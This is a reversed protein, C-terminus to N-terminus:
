IDNSVEKTRNSMASDSEIRGDSMATIRDAYSYIRQDHTVVILCRDAAMALDRFLQMATQGSEADLSSTPEDCIIIRPSHVLARAIAVRQQQGGSLQAPYKHLHNGLGLKNLLECAKENAKKASEGQALLPVAANEMINLTHLLNFQQFVFGINRSRFDVLKSSGLKAINQGFIHVDGKDPTLLGAIITILTTKGCGSPGILFTMEGAKAEFDIGNLVKTHAEGTGFGKEVGKCLIGSKVTETTNTKLDM